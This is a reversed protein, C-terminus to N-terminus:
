RDGHRPGIEPRLLIAHETKDHATRAPVETRLHYRRINERTVPHTIVKIVDSNRHITLLLHLRRVVFADLRHDNMPLPFRDRPMVSPGASRMVGHRFMAPMM